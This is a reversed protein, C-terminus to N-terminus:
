QLLVPINLNRGVFIFGEAFVQRFSHLFNHMHQDDDSLPKIIGMVPTMNGASVLLVDFQYNTPKYSNFCGARQTCTYEVFCVVYRGAQRFLWVPTREVKEGKAARVMLDNQLPFERNGVSMGLVRRERQSSLRDVSLAPAANFVFAELGKLAACAFVFRPLAASSRRSSKM